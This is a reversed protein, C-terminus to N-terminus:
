LHGLNIKKFIRILLDIFYPDTFFHLSAESQVHLHFQCVRKSCKLLLLVTVLPGADSCM